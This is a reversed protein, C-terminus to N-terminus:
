GAATIATVVGHCPTQEYRDRSSQPSLLPLSAIKQEYCLAQYTTAM